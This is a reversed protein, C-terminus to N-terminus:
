PPTLCFKKVAESINGQSPCNQQNRDKLPLRAINTYLLDLGSDKDLNELLRLYYVSSIPNDRLSIRKLKKLQELPGLNSITAGYLELVELNKLNELGGISLISRNYGLFLFKLRLLGNLPVLNSIENNQLDLYELESLFSLPLLDAIGQNTFEIQKLQRFEVLPFLDVIRVSNGNEKDHILRLEKVEKLYDYAESCTTTRQLNLGSQAIKKLELVTVFATDSVSPDQCYNLFGRLGCEQNKSSWVYHKGKTKCFEEPNLCTGNIFKSGDTKEECIVSASKCVGEIWESGKELLCQQEPSLCLENQYVYGKGENLSCYTKADVCTSTEVDWLKDNQRCIAAKTALIDAPKTEKNNTDATHNQNFFRDAKCAYSIFVLLILKGVLSTYACFNSM